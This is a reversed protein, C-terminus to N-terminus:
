KIKKLIKEIYNSNLFHLTYLFDVIESFAFRQEMENQTYFALIKM